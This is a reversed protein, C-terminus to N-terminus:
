PRWPPRPWRESGGASASWRTPPWCSSSSRPRTSMAAASRAAAPSSTSPPSSGTPRRRPASSWFATPLPGKRARIGLVVFLGVVLTYGWVPSPEGRVPEDGARGHRGRRLRRPRRRLPALRARQAALPPKRRRLGLGPVLPRVAPRPRRLAGGAALHRARPAQAPHRDGRRRYLPHRPQLVGPGRAPLGLCDPRRSPRRARARLADGPRVPDLRRLRDRVALPPGGLRPRPLARDLHRPTRALARHPARRLPLPPGRTVLLFITLVVFEPTASSMGFLPLLAAQLLVQM